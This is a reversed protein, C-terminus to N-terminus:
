SHLLQSMCSYNLVKSSCHRLWLSTKFVETASVPWEGRADFKHETLSDAMGYNNFCLLFLWWLINLMYLQSGVLVSTMRQKALTLNNSACSFCIYWFPQMKHSGQKENLLQLLLLKYHGMKYSGLASVFVYPYVWQMVCVCVCVRMQVGGWICVCVCVCVCAACVCVVVFFAPLAIIRGLLTYHNFIDSVCVTLCWCCYIKCCDSKSWHSM